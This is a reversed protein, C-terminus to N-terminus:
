GRCAGGRGRSVKAGESVVTPAALLMQRYDDGAPLSRALWFSFRALPDGGGGEGGGGEGGGGEDGDFSEGLSAGFSRGGGPQRVVAVAAASASSASAPAASAPDLVGQWAALSRLLRQARAVLAQPLSASVSLCLPLTAPSLVLSSRSVLALLKGMADVKKSFM